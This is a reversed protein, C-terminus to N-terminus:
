SENELEVFYVEQLERSKKILLEYLKRVFEPDDVGHESFLKTCKAIVEEERSPHRLELGNKVKFDAIDHSLALRESVLRVIDSDIDDLRERLEKLDM